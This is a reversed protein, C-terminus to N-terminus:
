KNIEKIIHQREAHSITGFLMFTVLMFNSVGHSVILLLHLRFDGRGVKCVTCNCFILTFVESLHIAIIHQAVKLGKM